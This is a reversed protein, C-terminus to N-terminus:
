RSSLHVLSSRRSGSAPVTLSFLLPFVHIPPGAADDAEPPVFSVLGDDGVVMVRVAGKKNKTHLVGKQIYLQDEKKWAGKGWLIGKFSCRGDTSGKFVFHTDSMAEGAMPTDAYMKGEKTMRMFKNVEFCYIAVPTGDPILTATPVFKLYAHEEVIKMADEPDSTERGVLLTLNSESQKRTLQMSEKRSSASLKRQRKAKAQLVLTPCSSSATGSKDLTQYQQQLNIPPSAAGAECGDAEEDHFEITISPQKPLGANSHPVHAVFPAAVCCRKIPEPMPPLSYRSPVCSSFHQKLNVVNCNCLACVGNNIASSPASDPARQRLRKAIPSTAMKEQVTWEQSVRREQLPSNERSSPRMPSGGIIPLFYTRPRPPPNIEASASGVLVGVVGAPHVNKFAQEVCVPHEHPEHACTLIHDRFTGEQQTAGCFPCGWQERAKLAPPRSLRGPRNPRPPRAPRYNHDFPLPSPADRRLTKLLAREKASARALAAAEEEEAM